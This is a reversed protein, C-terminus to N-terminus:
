DGAGFGEATWVLPAASTRVQGGRSNDIDSVLVIAATWVALLLATMVAHRTGILGFHFHRKVLGNSNCLLM